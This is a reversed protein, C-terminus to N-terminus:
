RRGSYYGRHDVRVYRIQVCSVCEHHHLERLEEVVLESHCRYM